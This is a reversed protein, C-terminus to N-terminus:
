LRVDETRIFASIEKQEWSTRVSSPLICSLKLLYKLRSVILLKCCIFKRFQGKTLPLFFSCKHIWAMILVAEVTLGHFNSFDICALLINQDLTKYIM